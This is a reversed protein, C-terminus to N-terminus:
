LLPHIRHDPWPLLLLRTRSPFLVLCQYLLYFFPHLLLFAVLPMINIDHLLYVLLCILDLQLAQTQSVYWLTCSSHAVKWEIAQRHGIILDIGIIYSSEGFPNLTYHISPNNDNEHLQNKCHCCLWAWSIM